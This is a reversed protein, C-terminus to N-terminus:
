VHARGIQTNSTINKRTKNLDGWMKHIFGGKESVELGYSNGVLGSLGPHAIPIHMADVYNDAIQKWNVARPRMTIRGLPKLEEFKYPEIEDLYPEFQDAVSPTKSPIVKAFVFGQFIEM